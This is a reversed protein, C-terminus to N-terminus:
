GACDSRPADESFEREASEPCYTAAEAIDVFVIRWTEDAAPHADASPV